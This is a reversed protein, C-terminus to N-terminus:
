ITLSKLRAPVGVYTGAETIDKTVVAGAGIIVDDCVSVNPLISSHTGLQCRKGVKAGGLVTAYPSLTTYDGVETDHAISSYINMHVHKGIKVNPETICAFQCVVLGKIHILGDRFENPVSANKNISSPFKYTEIANSIMERVFPNGIAIFLVDCMEPVYLTSPNSALVFKDNEYLINIIDLKDGSMEFQSRLEKAFGGNGILVIRQNM